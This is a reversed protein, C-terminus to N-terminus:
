KPESLYDLDLVESDTYDKATMDDLTAMWLYPEEFGETAIIKKQWKDLIEIWSTKTFRVDKEKVLCITTQIKGQTIWAPSASVRIERLSRLANGEESNKGHKDKAFRLFGQMMSVFADPFAFRARKRALANSLTRQEDTTKCGPKRTADALLTKELTMVRDLDVVWPNNGFAPLYVAGPRLGSKAESLVSTPVEVIPCVEVYPREVLKNVIDCTQTVVVIGLVESTIAQLEGDEPDASDATNTLPQKPNALHVFEKIDHTFDGQSWERLKRHAADAAEGSLIGV